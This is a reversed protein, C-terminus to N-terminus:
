LRGHTANMSQIVVTEDISPKMSLNVCHRFGGSCSSTTTRCGPGGKRVQQSGRSVKGFRCVIIETSMLLSKERM